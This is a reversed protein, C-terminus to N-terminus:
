IISYFYVNLQFPLSKQEISGHRSAMKPFVFFSIYNRGYFIALSGATSFSARHKRFIYGM